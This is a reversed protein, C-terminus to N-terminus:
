TDSLNVSATVPFNTDDIENSIQSNPTSYHSYYDNNNAQFSELNEYDNNQYYDYYQDLQQFNEQSEVPPIENPETTTSINFLEKSTLRPTNGPNSQFSNTQVSRNPQQSFATRQRLHTNGSSVDMPEPKPLPTNNPRAFVNNQQPFQPSSNVRPVSFLNRNQQFPNNQLRPYPNSFPMNRAMPNASNLNFQRQPTPINFQPHPTNQSTKTRQNFLDFNSIKPTVIKNSALIRTNNDSKTYFINQEKICYSFAVALSDPKMARVTSGLPERLGSLFTNLCMETFLERKAKVVNPDVEHIQVHNTMTALLEIIESYFGEM